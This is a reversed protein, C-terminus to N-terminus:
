LLIIVQCFDNWNKVSNEFDMFEYLENDQLKFLDQKTINSINTDKEMDNHYHNSNNNKEEEDEDEYEDNLMKIFPNSQPSQSPIFSTLKIDAFNYVTNDEAENIIKVNKM